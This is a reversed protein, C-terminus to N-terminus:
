ENQEEQLQAEEAAEKEQIKELLEDAHEFSYKVKEVLTKVAVLITHAQQEFISIQEETMFLFNVEYDSLFHALYDDYRQFFSTFDRSFEMAIKSKTDDIGYEDVSRIEGSVLKEAAEKQQEPELRSLKDLNQQTVSVGSEEIIEQAEPTLEKAIKVQRRVTREDVGLKEATDQAFFKSRASLNDTLQGGEARRKMGNGQAAGAKTESHLTEYIEKRRLMLKSTELPTLNVRVYNEDIEALEAHLSDLDNVTCEIETWELLKAAELRHLGAILNHDADVTIPNMLGIEAISDALKRIAYPSAERRDTNIKIENINIRM